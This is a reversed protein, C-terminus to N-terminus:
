NMLREKDEVEQNLLPLTPPTPPPLCDDVAGYSMVDGYQSTNAFGCSSKKVTYTVNSFSFVELKGKM